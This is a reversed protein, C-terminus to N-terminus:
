NEALTRDPTILSFTKTVKETNNGVVLTYDGDPLEGLILSLAKKSEHKGITREYLANGKADLLKIKVPTATNKQVFVRVNATNSVRFANVSFSTPAAAPATPEGSFPAAVAATFPAALLTAALALVAFNTKMIEKIKLQNIKTKVPCNRRHRRPKNGISTDFNHAKAPVKCYM